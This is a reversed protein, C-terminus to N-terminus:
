SEPPPPQTRCDLCDLVVPGRLRQAEYKRNALREIADRNLRFVEILGPADSVPGDFHEVLAAETIACDIAALTEVDEGAFTVSNSLADWADARHPFALNM